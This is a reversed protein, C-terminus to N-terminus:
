VLFLVLKFSQQVLNVLERLDFYRTPDHILFSKKTYIIKFSAFIIRWGMDSNQFKLRKKECINDIKGHCASLTLTVLSLNAEKITDIGMM